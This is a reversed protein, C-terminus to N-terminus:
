KVEKLFKVFYSAMAPVTSLIILVNMIGFKQAVAGLVSMCLAVTGVCFGNIFGAVISKYKPLTRQAWVMTVPQALMTTFGIIFFVLISLVPQTKYILGFILMMPFTAWMSFYVVPKSGFIREAKPSLFSGLAGAFVFLFLAFGIYIPSYGMSKWLFPLLICSSSTILSKMMAVLMLYNMQRCGLIEKFSIIFNKHEPQKEIRSLKPVFIFMMFALALGFLSTYSVVDLGLFQTIWTAMLPGFAFGLSGMSMFIGMTNSCDKGSFYNIFGMAQPHFFSGGLSGLIMFILLIFVNPAAPTLPIFLSALILGWFIFFRKLINDAFFGFIPQLMSSCIHSISIIITAIAMSFGLKAAIFPMIPNLFGSYVDALLHALCLWIIANKTNKMDSWGFGLLM